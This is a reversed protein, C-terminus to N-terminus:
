GCIDGVLGNLGMACTAWAPDLDRIQTPVVLTPRYADDVITFYCPDISMPQGNVNDSLTINPGPTSCVWWRFHGRVHELREATSESSPRRLEQM